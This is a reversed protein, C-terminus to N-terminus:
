NAAAFSVCKIAYGTLGRKDLIDKFPLSSIIEMPNRKPIRTSIESDKKTDSSAKFRIKDTLGERKLCNVIRKITEDSHFDEETVYNRVYDLVRIPDDQCRALLHARTRRAHKLDGAYTSIAM